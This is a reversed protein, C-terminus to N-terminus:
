VLAKLFSEMGLWNEDEYRNELVDRLPLFLWGQQPVRWALFGLAGARECWESMEAARDKKIKPKEAHAKCEVAVVLGRRIALIDAPTNHGSGAVRLTSFGKSALLSILDREYRVGKAYSM